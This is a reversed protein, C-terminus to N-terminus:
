KRPQISLLVHCPAHTAVHKATTGLLVEGLTRGHHYGLVALEIKEEKLDDLLAGGASHARVIRTTVKMRSRRAVRAAARLIKQAQAELDPVDAELPTIDPLEIVHVLLLRAGRAGVRCALDTLEVAHAADKLGVLIRKAKKM